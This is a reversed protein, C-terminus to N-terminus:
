KGITGWLHTALTANSGERRGNPFLVRYENISSIRLLCEAWTSDKPSRAFVKPARISPELYHVLIKDHLEDLRKKERKSHQLSELSSEESPIIICVLCKYLKHVSNCGRVDKRSDGNSSNISHLQYSTKSRLIKAFYASFEKTTSLVFLGTTNQDLRQPTALYLLSSSPSVVPEMYLMPSETFESKQKRLSRNTQRVTFYSDRLYESSPQTSSSSPTSKIAVKKVETTGQGDSYLIPTVYGSQMAIRQILCRGYATAVNEVINDVTM